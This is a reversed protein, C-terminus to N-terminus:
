NCTTGIGARVVPLSSTQSLQIAVLDGIATIVSATASSTATAGAAPNSVSTTLGTSSGNKYLTATVTDTSASGSSTYVTLTIANFTCAVPMAGGAFSQGNANVPTDGSINLYVPTTNGPLIGHAVFVNASSSSAGAPGTPGTPGTPGAAGTSGNSGSPGTPGTPGAPGTSGQQALLAWPAGGTPTNGVNGNALSIYSSGSFFVASGTAYTTLNSWTGQFAIPPGTPGTPGTAGTTGTIGQIGQPGTPGTPGTAGTAGTLGTPGTAGTPGTVGQQALLAWPAGGTPINGVNGNSLSIYSSGNFFVADGTAYTTLNSWTGQFAVSPGTAGTPGTPGTAGTAGTLGTSGTPGTAGTAGTLGTPGTPGTAGTVGQQALLAWPIGNTPTNNLNGNQVSVYSSGNYFVAQGLSYTSLSTWTGQFSVPPGTPGTAGAIGAVGQIGQPGTPGAPGIAGTPGTAGTPGAPGIGGQQALLAWPVGGTPTNGVNGTSLSVYSSGNFFVADGTVYTTLNTWTGQFSVPPGAPGTPGTIGTIGQPGAPGTNGITGQLGAPGAPGTAGTVGQQALLAWPSGGTPTNNFNANSLSIYSSGNYFVADGLFYSTGTTWTGRFSVPAGSPGTAGTAGTLGVPGAIGQPGQPGIPGITGAPGGPGQPGQPGAAGAGGTQGPIGQPGSGGAPGAVGAPGVPGTPGTLGIPGAPGTAGTPGTPGAPGAPGTLGAKPYPFGVRGPPAIPNADLTTFQAFGAESRTYRGNAPVELTVKNTRPQTPTKVVALVAISDTPGFNAPAGTYTLIVEAPGAGQTVLFDSSKMVASTAIASRAVSEIRGNGLDFTLRFVDGPLVQAGESQDRNTLTVLVAATEELGTVDPSVTVALAARGVPPPPQQAFVVGTLALSLLFVFGATRGLRPNSYTSCGLSRFPM